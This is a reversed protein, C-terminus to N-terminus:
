ITESDALETAFISEIEKDTNIPLREGCPDTMGALPGCPAKLTPNQFSACGALVVVASAAILIKVTDISKSKM